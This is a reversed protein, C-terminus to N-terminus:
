KQMDYFDILLECIRKKRVGDIRMFSLLFTHTNRDSHCQFQFDPMIILQERQYASKQNQIKIVEM